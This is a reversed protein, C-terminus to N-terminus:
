SPLATEGDEEAALLAEASQLRYRTGSKVLVFFNAEPSRALVQDVGVLGRSDAQGNKVCEEYGAVGCQGAWKFSFAPSFYWMSEGLGPYKSFYAHCWDRLEPEVPPLEGTGCLALASDIVDGNTYLTQEPVDYELVTFLRNDAGDKMSDLLAATLLQAAREPPVEGIDELFFVGPNTLPDSIFDAAPGEGDFWTLGDGHLVDWGRWSSPDDALARIIEAQEEPSLTPPGSPPAQGCSASFAVLLLLLVVGLAYRKM